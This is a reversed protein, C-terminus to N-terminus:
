FGTPLTSGEALNVPSKQACGVRGEWPHSLLILPLTFGTRSDLDSVTHLTWDFANRTRVLPACDIRNGPESFEPDNHKQGVKRFENQEVVRRVNGTGRKQSGKGRLGGTAIGTFGTNVRCPPNASAAGNSVFFGAFAQFVESAERWQQRLIQTQTGLAFM